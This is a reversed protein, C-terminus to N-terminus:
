TRCFILFPFRVAFWSDSLEERFKNLETSKGCGRHGYVLVRRFSDTEEFLQKLSARLDGLDDRAESTEEFFDALAKGELPKPSCNKRIEPLTTAPMM